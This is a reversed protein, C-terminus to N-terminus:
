IFVNNGFDVFCLSYIVLLTTCIFGICKNRCLEIIKNTEEKKKFETIVVDNYKLEKDSLNNNINENINDGEM